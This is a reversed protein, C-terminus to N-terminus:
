HQVVFKKTKTGEKTAIRVLYTGSPLESVDYQRNQQYANEVEDIQIVRGNLDALTINALTPADLNIDVNLETNAPNPYFNLSNDPLAKEDAITYLEINMRLVAAEEVGFGGFYWDDSVSITSVQYYKIKTNFAQYLTNANGAYEAMLFYRSAPQLPVGQTGENLDSLPVTIDDYDNYTQFTKDGFGVLELDPNSTVDTSQDSFNSYDPLVNDNVRLLYLNVVKGAIPDDNDAACAFIATTAQYQDVWDTSTQYINGIYYNGGGGPRLGGLFNDDGDEKAYQGTTVKFDQQVSNNSNDFDTNASSISYKLTYTGTTLM